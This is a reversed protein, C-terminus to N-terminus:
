GSRRGKRIGKEAETRVQKPVGGQVGMLFAEVADPETSAWSRMLRGLSKRVHPDPDRIGVHAILSLDGSAAKDSLGRKEGKWRERLAAAGPGEVRAPTLAMGGMVAARRIVPAPRARIRAALVQGVPEGVARLAPAWVLWGLADATELDDVMELWRDALDLAVDPADHLSAAVLALALLGDEHATCFLEHLADEDEELNVGLRWAAAAQRAVEGPTVGRMGKLPRIQKMRRRSVGRDSEAELATSITFPDIAM